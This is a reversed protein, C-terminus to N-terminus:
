ISDSFTEKSFGRPVRELLPAVWVESYGAERMKSAACEAAEKNSFRAFVSPGSGSMLAGSGGFSELLHKVKILNPQMKLTVSELDNEPHLLVKEVSAVAGMTIAERRKTLDLESGIQHFVHATSVPEGSFVLVIFGGVPLGAKQVIEGKGSVWAFPGQFFFPVDSGIYGGLRALVARSLGLSWLRNLGMLTSAADSSGGGLGASVPINKELRITAGRTIQHTKKMEKQLMRAARLVLNTQDSPATGGTVELRIQVAEEQFTLIDYLGIMQMLSFINHYGDPRCSLVKLYLNIKAPARLTLGM